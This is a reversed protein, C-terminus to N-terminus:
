GEHGTAAAEIVFHFAEVLKRRAPLADYAGVLSPSPTRALIIGKPSICLDRAATANLGDV